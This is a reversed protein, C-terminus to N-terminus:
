YTRKRGRSNQYQNGNAISKEISSYLDIAYFNELNMNIILLTLNRAFSYEESLVLSRTKELLYSEIEDYGPQAQAEKLLFEVQSSSRLDLAEDIRQKMELFESDVCYAAASILLLFIFLLNKFFSRANFRRNEM